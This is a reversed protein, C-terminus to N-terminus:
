ISVLRYEVFFQLHRHTRTRGTVLVSCGLGTAAFGNRLKETWRPGQLADIKVKCHRAIPRKVLVSSHRATDLALGYTQRVFSAFRTAVHNDTIM